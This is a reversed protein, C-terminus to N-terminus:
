KGFQGAPKQSGSIWKALTKLETDSIETHRFAPMAGMGSRVTAEIADAPLNQGLIIPGVNAGHCYGCTRDYAGEPGQALKADHNELSTLAPGPAKSPQEPQGSSCSTLALLITLGTNRL